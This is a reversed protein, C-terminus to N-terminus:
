LDMIESGTQEPELDRLLRDFAKQYADHDKWNSFDPIFYERVEVGMDKGRDADFAEWDRIVKFPVLSIPFLKRRAQRREAALAGRLETKIWESAMSDASLILLLKDYDGIARTIQEYLKQGGRADKPAFWCRVGKAQLDAHLKAAFAEDESAHSIFLSFFPLARAVSTVDDAKAPPVTPAIVPSPQAQEIETPSPQSAPALTTLHRNLLDFLALLRQVTFLPTLPNDYQSAQAILTQTLEKQFVRLSYGFDFRINEIQEPGGSTAFAAAMAAEDLVTGSLAVDVFAQGVQPLRLFKEYAVGVQGLEAPSLGAGATRLMQAFAAQYVERLSRQQSKTLRDYVREVVALALGTALNVLISELVPM